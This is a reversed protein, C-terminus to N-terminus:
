HEARRLIRQYMWLQGLQNAGVGQQNTGWRQDNWYNVEIIPRDGTAMLEAVVSHHQEVKAALIANMFLISHEDWDPRLTVKRGLRKAQGPTAAELISLRERYDETKLAQFAHEGTVAHILLSLEEIEVWIPTFAFNSLLKPWVYNTLDWQRTQDRDILALDLM